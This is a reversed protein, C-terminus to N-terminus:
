RFVRKVSAILSIEGEAALNVVVKLRLWFSIKEPKRARFFKISNPPRFFRLLTNLFRSNDNQLLLDQLLCSFDTLHKKNM